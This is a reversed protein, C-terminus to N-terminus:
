VPPGPEVIMMSEKDKDGDGLTPTPAQSTSSEVNIPTLCAIEKARAQLKKVLATNYEFRVGDGQSKRIPLFWDWWKDGM